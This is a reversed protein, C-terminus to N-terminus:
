KLIEDAIMKMNTYLLDMSGSNDVIYDWGDWETLASDAVDGHQEVSDRTVKILTCDFQKFREVEEIFRVDPCIIIDTNFGKIVFDIWTYKYVEKINQSYRIWLERVTMGLDPLFEEKSNNPNEYYEPEKVGAWSYLSYVDMKLKYALSVKKVNCKYEMKLYNIMFKAATDKGVRRRHGFGIVKM